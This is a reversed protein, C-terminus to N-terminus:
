ILAIAIFSVVIIIGLVVLAFKWIYKMWDRYPIELYALGAVLFISTPAILSILGFMTQFIFAVVSLEGVALDSFFGIFSNISQPFVNYTFSTVISSALTGMLSFEEGAFQEVIVYVFNTSLSLMAAFVACSLLAYIAPALMEKAGKVFGDLTENFRISYLWSIILSAIILVFIITYNTWQGLQSINGFINNLLPYGNIEFEVIQEHITAFAEIPFTYDWKYTGVILIVFMIIFIIVLPFTDKKTESKKYLPIDVKVEEKTETKSNKKTSKVEKVNELRLAKSIILAYLVTTIVWLVARILILTFMSFNEDISSFIVNVYGWVDSGLITGIQGVLLAGVTAAFAHIKKYGLKLLIAAFFPVLIFLVNILGIVSSLLSLVVTTIILFKKEKKNWRDAVNDVLKPYVGTVNLVGYFGGIALLLLGFETFNNFVLLPINVLDFLGIPNTADLSTFSGNSYIGAPVVWSILVIIAFTIGLVKLLDYKKM